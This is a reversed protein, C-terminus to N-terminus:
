RARIREIEKQLRTKKSFEKKILSKLKEKLLLPLKEYEKNYIGNVINEELKIM